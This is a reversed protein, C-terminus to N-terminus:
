IKVISFLKLYSFGEKEISLLLPLQVLQFVISHICTGCGISLLRQEIFCVAQNTIIFLVVAITFQMCVYMCQDQCNVSPQTLPNYLELRALVM